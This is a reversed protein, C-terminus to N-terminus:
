GPGLQGRLELQVGWVEEIPVARRSREAIPPGEACLFPYISYAQDGTVSRVEDRWGIWRQGDYYADLDGHFLWHLWDSYRLDTDEWALTDPALYAVRGVPALSEDGSIAFFGGVVDDGVLLAGPWRQPGGEHLGNWTALDRPLREHGAGLVRVWGDDVLLGGTRHAIAGMPSRTTVQLAHLVEDGRWEDAPLVEVTRTSSAIWELVAPLAPEDTDVLDDLSRM